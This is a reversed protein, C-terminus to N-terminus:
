WGLGLGLGFGLGGAVPRQEGGRAPQDAAIGGRQQLEVDVHQLGDRDVAQAIFGEPALKGDGGMRAERAQMERITDAAEIGTEVLAILAEMQAPGVADFAHPELADLTLLGWVAGRLRLPAGMCDHVPLIGPQGAVLGDYPDPLNCDHAFRLGRESGLLRAFRPHAAVPFQRGLTEDSLGDVAVPKLVDVDLQLLAAADCRVLGRAAALLSRYRAAEAVPEPSPTETTSDVRLTTM